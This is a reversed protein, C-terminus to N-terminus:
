EFLWAIYDFLLCQQTASGVPENLVIIAPAVQTVYIPVIATKVALTKCELNENGM